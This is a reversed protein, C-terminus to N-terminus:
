KELYTYNKLEAVLAVTIKNYAGSPSPVTEVKQIASYGESIDTCLVLGNGGRFGEDYDVGELVYEQNTDEDYVIGKNYVKM